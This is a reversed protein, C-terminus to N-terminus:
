SEPSPEEGALVAYIAESVADPDKLIEHDPFRVVRIGLGALAAERRRDCAVQEADLHQGGDAEVVVGARMCYFDLVYGAVPVQRRFKFGGLRRDRLVRWLRKEADTPERRMERAFRLLKRSHDRKFPMARDHPRRLNGTLFICGEGRGEGPTGPSPTFRELAGLARRV